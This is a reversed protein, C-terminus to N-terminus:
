LRFRAPSGGVMNDFGEGLASVIGDSELNGCFKWGTLGARNKRADLYKWSPNGGPM